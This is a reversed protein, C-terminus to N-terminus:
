QLVEAWDEILSISAERRDRAADLRGSGREAERLRPTSVM